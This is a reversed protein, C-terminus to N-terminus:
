PNTVVDGIALPQEAELILGFSLNDLSKFVILTGAREDPLDVRGGQVRDRVSEGADMVALVHGVELGTATGKNIAVVDLQGIHSVGGEVAIIEADILEGPVEPYLLPDFDDQELPLLIDGALIERSSEIISFKSVDESQLEFRASGMLEARYGIYRRTEPDRYREGVRFIQYISVNPVLEGRVYFDDEQGVLIRSQPGAVMYPADEIEDESILRTASFFERIQDLPITTVAEELPISSIEPSLKVVNEPVYNNPLPAGNDVVLQPQGDVYILRLRDGPYILHPNSVQANIEWIEPWLWPDRLFVASIDWLTDGPQVVYVEPYDPNVTVQSVVSASFFTVIAVLCLRRFM